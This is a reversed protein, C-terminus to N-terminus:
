FFIGNREHGVAPSGAGNEGPGPNYQGDPDSRYVVDHGDNSATFSITAPGGVFRGTFGFDDDHIRQVDGHGAWRCDFSVHGPIPDPGGGFIASIGDHFDPVAVSRGRLHAEGTGPDAELASAAVPITWTLGSPAVGPEWDHLQHTPDGV